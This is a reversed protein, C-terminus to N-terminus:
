ASSPMRSTSLDRPSASTYLLCTPHESFDMYELLERAEPIKRVMEEIYQKQNKTAPLNDRGGAMKEVGERTGIYRVYHEIRPAPVDRLYRSTFILKAM